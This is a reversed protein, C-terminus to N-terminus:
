VSIKEANDEIQEIKSGDIDMDELKNWLLPAISEVPNYLLSGDKKEESIFKDNFHNIILLLISIFVAAKLIGFIGGALKNLFRLAVMNVIKELIKGIFFVIVVAIIFTIIFSIVPLYKPGLDLNNTLFDAVFDSFYLATYIGAILAVLSALEIILGRKFGRYAFWIIPIILIIDIINM